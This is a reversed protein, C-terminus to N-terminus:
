HKVRNGVMETNIPKEFTIKYVWKPDSYCKLVIKCAWVNNLECVVYVFVEEIANAGAFLVKVLLTM